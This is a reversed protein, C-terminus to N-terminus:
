FAINSISVVLKGIESPPITLTGYKTPLVINPSTISGQVSEGKFTQVSHINNTVLTIKSISMIPFSLEGYDTRMRITINTYSPNMPVNIVSGDATVITIRDLAYTFSLILIFIIVYIIVKNYNTRM